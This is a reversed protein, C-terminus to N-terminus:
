TGGGMFQRYPSPQPLHLMPILMPALAIVLDTGVVVRFNMSDAFDLMAKLQTGQLVSGTM